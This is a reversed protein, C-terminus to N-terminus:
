GLLAQDRAADSSRRKREVMPRTRKAKLTWTRHLTYPTPVVHLGPGNWVCFPLLAGNRGGRNAGCTRPVRLATVECLQSRRGRSRDNRGGRADNRGGRNTGCRKPIRACTCILPRLVFPSHRPYSLPSVARSLLPLSCYIGPAVKAVQRRAGGVSVPQMGGGASVGSVGGMAGTLTSHRTLIGLRM